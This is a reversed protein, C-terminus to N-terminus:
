GRVPILQTAVRKGVSIAPNEVLHYAAVSAATIFVLSFFLGSMRPLNLRVFVFWLIPVHSIYIGYSYKAILKAAMRVSQSRVQSFVPIAMGVAFCFVWDRVLDCSDPWWTKHDMRYVGRLASPFAFGYVRLLDVFRYTLVLGVLAIIWIYGRVRPRQNQLLHWAILGCAFCPVYRLILSEADAGAAMRLTYEAMACIVAIGFFLLLRKSSKAKACYGFLLPLLAYMQIEYPLSWLVCILSPSHTVNQLLLVNSVVVSVSPRIYSTTGWSTPPINFALVAMIALISLPFIRFARRILFSAFLSFGTLALREMSMTLVLATHVFFLLVGFHGLDGM